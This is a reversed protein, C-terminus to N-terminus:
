SQGCLLSGQKLIEARVDAFVNKRNFECKEYPNLILGAVYTADVFAQKDAEGDIRSLEAEYRDSCRCCVGRKVAKREACALCVGKPLLESVRKEGESSRSVGSVAMVGARTIM